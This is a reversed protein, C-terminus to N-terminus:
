MIIMMLINNVVDLEVNDVLEKLQSTMLPVFLLILMETILLLMMDMMLTKRIIMMMAIIM